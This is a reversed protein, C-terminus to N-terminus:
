PTFGPEVPRFRHQGRGGTSSRGLMKVTESSCKYCDEGTAGPAKECDLPEAIDGHILDVLEPQGAVIADIRDYKGYPSACCYSSRTTPESAQKERDAANAIM